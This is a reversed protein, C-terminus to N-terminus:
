RAAWKIVNQLDAVVPRLLTWVRPGLRRKWALRSWAQWSCLPPYVESAFELYEACDALDGTDFANYAGWFATEGFSRQALRELHEANRILDQHERLHTDLAAKQQRLRWVAPYTHSMSREHLRQFAQDAQLVGIVGHYALRLWMETDGSHPLDARYGGVKRQLKLRVMVAPSQIKTRCLRCAEELLQLHSIIHVTPGNELVFRDWPVQDVFEISSGFVFGVDPRADLVAAARSLAGPTLADDASLLLAYDACAWELLGENYTSIHGRNTQHRVFEIRRDISALRRSVAETEDTSCDDIILIRLDVGEQTLVSNVCQPLFSGYNYCPIVVAVSSM